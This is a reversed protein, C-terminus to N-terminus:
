PSTLLAAVKKKESDFSSCNNKKNLQMNSGSKQNVAYRIGRFLRPSADSFENKRYQEITRTDFKKVAIGSVDHESNRVDLQVNRDDKQVRVSRVVRSLRTKVSSFKNKSLKQISLTDFNSTTASNFNSGTQDVDYQM